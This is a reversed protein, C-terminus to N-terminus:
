HGFIKTMASEITEYRFSFSTEPLRKSIVKQSDLIVSSMEGFALKLAAKPIPLLTPRHLAHGLAKTFHFNEVPHPAAGDYVGSFSSDTAAKAYLNVLDDLHIWSMYQDGNGIPGGLGLRFPPLMKALAGGHQELVVATRIIVTRKVKKLTYAAAEWDKCLDALFNKGPHSEETMVADQNVPYIGVASASVFFDLQSSLHQELLTTLNITSQIRSDRLKKKQEDTWRKAAINEGMLNIVGTIGQISEMPPLTHTDKWEFVKVKSNKFVAPVKENDRTLISLEHGDSLLKAALASGVFGTAGTILIKM